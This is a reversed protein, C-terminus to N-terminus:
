VMLIDYGCWSRRLPCLSHMGVRLYLLSAGEQHCFAYFCDGLDQVGRRALEALTSIRSQLARWVFVEVKLSALNVWVMKWLGNGLSGTSSSLVCLDKVKYCGRVEPIWRLRDM